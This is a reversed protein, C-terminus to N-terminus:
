VILWMNKHSGLTVECDSDIWYDEERLITMKYICAHWKSAFCVFINCPIGWIIEFM